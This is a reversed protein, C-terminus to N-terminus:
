TIPIIDKERLLWNIAIEAPSVEHEEAVQRM